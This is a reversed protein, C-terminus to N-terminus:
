AALQEFVEDEDQPPNWPVLKGRADHIAEADKSWRDM